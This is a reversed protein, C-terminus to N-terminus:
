PVKRVECLVVRVGFCSGQFEFNLTQVSTRVACRCGSPMFSWDGGRAVRNSKDPKVVPDRGGRLKVAYGDWCWELANGHMDHVGWPNPKKKGVPKASLDNADNVDVEDGFWAYDGLRSEDDGFSFKTVTGARCAREWQAETPLTYEWGDPLRNGKREQETLNRCFAVADDWSVKAAPLDGGEKTISKQGKWPETKNIQKWETQTVEYKGLWFGRTLTVQVQDENEAHKGEHDLETVPSGMTFEGSPCWVLKMKLNNDDRVDGAKKGLMSDAADNTASKNPGDSNAVTASLFSIGVAIFVLRPVSKM